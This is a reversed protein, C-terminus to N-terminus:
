LLWMQTCIRFCCIVQQAQKELQLGFLSPKCTKVQSELIVQCSFAFFQFIEINALTQASELRREGAMIQDNPNQSSGKYELLLEPIDRNQIGLNLMSQLCKGLSNPSLKKQSVLGLIDVKQLNESSVSFSISSMSQINVLSGQSERFLVHHLQKYM